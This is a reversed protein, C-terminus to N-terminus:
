DMRLLRKVFGFYGSLSQMKLIWLTYIKKYSISEKDAYSVPYLLVPLKTHNVTKTIRSLAKFLVDKPLDSSDLVIVKICSTLNSLNLGIDTINVMLVAKLNNNKKLSFLFRQRKFGQDEYQKELEDFGEMGAELDLATVMLGGSAHEYFSELEELDERHTESLEWQRPLRNKTDSENQYMFYAFDDESCKKPDKIYRVTGGFVRSPFKNSARYYMHIFDLHLSYFRFSNHLFDGAQDLVILGARNLASKRAAHHHIMWTNTYSRLMSMHGFIRNKDQCIFHRAINPHQTYLKKYTDKITAKNKQIFEYKDPYIFGTEFFFDWLNDMDVHNCVYSNDHKARQLISILKMNDEPQMDLIAIGCKVQKGQQDRRDEGKIQRYLVQAKCKVATDGAFSLELEPFIMGPLLVANDEEEVVSFGSGSIDITKLTIMKKIFPHQFVIDPQPMIKERRSRRDKQHHRKIQNAVPELVYRRTIHEGGSHKLIRCEGAYLPERENSFVVHVHLNEDIWQFTQPPITTLEVCFSVANFDILSGYFFSSNQILQVHTGDCVHRAVKRSNIEYCTEPLVFSIGKDDMNSVEPTVSIIKADDIIFFNDFAYSQLKANAGNIQEWLCELTNGLCPSPRARLTVSRDYKEHKFNILITKDQFNVFNLKNILYDKTLRKGTHQHEAETPYHNAEAKENNLEPCTKKQHIMESQEQHLSEEM